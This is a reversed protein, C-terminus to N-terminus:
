YRHLSPPLEKDAALPRPTNGSQADVSLRMEPKNVALPRSALRFASVAQTLRSA